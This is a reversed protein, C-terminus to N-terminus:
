FSELLFFLEGRFGKKSSNLARLEPLPELEESSLELLARSFLFFFFFFFALSVEVSSELEWLEVSSDSCSDPEFSM